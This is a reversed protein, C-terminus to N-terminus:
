AFEGRRRGGRRVRERAAMVGGHFKGDCRRTLSPASEHMKLCKVPIHPNDARQDSLKNVTFPGLNLSRLHIQNSYLMVATQNIFFQCFIFYQFINM